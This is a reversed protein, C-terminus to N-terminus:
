GAGVGAMLRITILVFEAPREPAFGIELNLTGAAIDALTTTSADCRVFFSNDATTGFFAGAAFLGQLFSGAALRVQSWLEEDNPEFVTWRLGSILSQEIYLALRRTSIYTWDTGHESALTRAGWVVYGYTPFERLANIGFPNLLGNDQDTLVVQLGDVRISAAVGAPAKWVGRAADTAAYIGALTGCPGITVPPGGHPPMVILRPFYTAANAIGPGLAPPVSTAWDLAQAVSTVSDPLDILAFAGHDQAHALITTAAAAYANADMGAIDPTCILNIGQVPVIAQLGGAIDGPAAIRVVYAHAGGNLFFQYLQLSTPSAPDIAGFLREVDILNSCLTPQGLPGQPLCGIFAATSTGVGTIAQPAAPIEQLYVGPYTPTVAM